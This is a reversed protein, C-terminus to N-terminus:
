PQKGAREVARKLARRALVDVLERRFDDSGRIDTIPIAEDRALGAARGITDDNVKQGILSASAEEAFLPIPAVAGLVIRADRCEDKDMDLYAAVSAVALSNSV